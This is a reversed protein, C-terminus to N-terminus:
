YYDIPRITFGGFAPIAILTGTSTSRRVGVTVIEGDDIRIGTWVATYPTYITDQNVPVNRLNSVLPLDDTTGLPGIFLSVVLSETPDVDVTTQFQLSGVIEILTGSTGSAATIASSSYVAVDSTTIALSGSQNLMPYLPAPSMGRTEQVLLAARDAVEEISASPLAGSSPFLISQDLGTRRVIHLEKGSAPTYAGITTLESSVVSAQYHVSPTKLIPAVSLDLPDVEYLLIEDSDKFDFPIAFVQPFTGASVYVKKFATTSIAM